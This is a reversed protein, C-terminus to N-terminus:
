KRTNIKNGKIDGGAAVGGSSASVTPARPSDLPGKAAFFKIVAWAGGAVLVFGGGIWTLTAQNAPSSIFHWIESLV